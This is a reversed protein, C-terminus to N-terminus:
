AMREFGTAAFYRHKQRHDHHHDQYQAGQKINHLTRFMPKGTDRSGNIPRNCGDSGNAKTIDGGFSVQSSENGRDDHQHAPASQCNWCAYDGTLQGGFFVAVLFRRRGSSRAGFAHAFPVQWIGM